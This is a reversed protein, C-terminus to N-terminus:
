SPLLDLIDQIVALIEDRLETTLEPLAAITGAVNQADNATGAVSAPLLPSTKQILLEIKKVISFFQEAEIGEFTLNNVDLESISSKVAELIERLASFLGAAAPLIKAVEGIAGAIAGVTDDQLLDRFEKLLDLLQQFYDDLLM